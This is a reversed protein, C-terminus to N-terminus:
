PVEEPLTRDPRVPRPCGFARCSLDVMLYVDERARHLTELHLVHVYMVLPDRVVELTLTGPTLSVANAAVNVVADPLDGLPVAVIAERIRNRPTIVEWAVILTAEALKYLFVCLFWTAHLPRLRNSERSRPSLLLVVAVVAFGSIVNAWSLDGWLAIWLAHATAGLGLRFLRERIM